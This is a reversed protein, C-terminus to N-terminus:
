RPTEFGWFPAYRELGLKPTFRTSTFDIGREAVAILVKGLSLLSIPGSLESIPL